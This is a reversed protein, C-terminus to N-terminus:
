IYSDRNTIGVAAIEEESINTKQLVEEFTSKQAEYIEIPDHEVWGSQPYFQKLEKQAIAVIEGAKNFLITRTSTTGQDFAIIYNAKPTRTSITTKRM